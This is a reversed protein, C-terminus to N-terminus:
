LVKRTDKAYQKNRIKEAPITLDCEPNEQPRVIVTDGDRLTDAVPIRANYRNSCNDAVPETVRVSHIEDAM